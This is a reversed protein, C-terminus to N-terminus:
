DNAGSEKITAPYEKFPIFTVSEPEMAMGTDSPKYVLKLSGISELFGTTVSVEAVLRNSAVSYYTVTGIGATDSINGDEARDPLRLAVEAPSAGKLKLSIVM